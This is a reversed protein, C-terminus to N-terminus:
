KKNYATLIDLYDISYDTRPTEGLKFDSYVVNNYNAVFYQRYKNTSAGDVVLRYPLQGYSPTQQIKGFLVPLCGDSIDNSAGRLEPQTSSSYEKTQTSSNNNNNVISNVVAGLGTTAVGIIGATIIPHAAVFVRVANIIIAGITSLVDAPKQCIEIVDGNKLIHWPKLLKGNLYANKYDKFHFFAFHRNWKKEVLQKKSLNRYIIRIM